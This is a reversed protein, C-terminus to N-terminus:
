LQPAKSKKVKKAKYKKTVKYIEEAILATGEANPHIGDYTLQPKGIFPKYLNIARVKTIKSIEKIAPLLEEKVAAENIGWKDEFVPIPYCIYVTPECSLERFSNILEVYDIIFEAKYKWNQPKTDNTGLKIIVIDPNWEIAKLYCEENWYPHDGKKLLTRGSVGFNRVEYKDGMLAQLIEPYKKGKELGSGETISNGICAVRIKSQASLNLSIFLIPLLFITSISNKM